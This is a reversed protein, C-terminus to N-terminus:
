ALLKTLEDRISSEIKGKFMMAAFPLDGDLDVSSEQVTMTGKVNIGYTAFGFTLQNENWEGELDSLKDQYRERVKELFKAVRQTAEERGLQHPVSLSMKPMAVEGIATDLLDM